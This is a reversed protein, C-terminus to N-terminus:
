ARKKSIKTPKKKASKTVKIKTGKPAKAMNLLVAAQVLAKIAPGDVKDGEVFKVARWVKGDLFSNFLKKPDPLSAGKSFVLNVWQKHANALCLNGNRCWVPTGMWKWEEVVGPDAEHITKRIDAMIRGRWDPLSAILEDIQKSPNM